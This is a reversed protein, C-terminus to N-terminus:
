ENQHMFQVENQISVCIKMVSTAPSGNSNLKSWCLLWCFTNSNASAWTALYTPLAEVNAPWFRCSRPFNLYYNFKATLPWAMIIIVIIIILLCIWSIIDKMHILWICTAPHCFILESNLAIYLSIWCDSSGRNKNLQHHLFTMCIRNTNLSSYADSYHMSRLTYRHYVKSRIIITTLLGIHIIDYLTLTVMRFTRSSEGTLNKLAQHQVYRTLDAQGPVGDTM